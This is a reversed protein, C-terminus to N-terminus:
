DVWEKLMYIEGILYSKIDSQSIIHYVWVTELSTVAAEVCLLQFSSFNLLLPMAKSLAKKYPCWLKVVYERCM